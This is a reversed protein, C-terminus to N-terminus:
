RGERLICLIGNWLFLQAYCDDLADHPKCDRFYGHEKAIAEGVERAEKLLVKRELGTVQMATDLASNLDFVRYHFDGVLIDKGDVTEYRNRELYGDRVSFPIDFNPGNHGALFVDQPPTANCSRFFELIQARRIEVPVSDVTKCFAYLGAMHKKAFESTPERDTHNFFSLSTGPIWHKGNYNCELLALQLIEDSKLEVGTTEIDLMFKKM